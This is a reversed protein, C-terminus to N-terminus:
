RNKEKTRMSSFGKTKFPFTRPPFCESFTHFFGAGALRCFHTLPNKNYLNLPNRPSKGPPNKQAREGVFILLFFGALFDAFFGAAWFIFIRSFDTRGFGSGFFLTFFESVIKGKLQQVRIKRQRGRAFDRSCLLWRPVGPQNVSIELSPWTHDKFDLVSRCKMRTARELVQTFLQQDGGHASFWRWRCNPNSFTFNSLFAHIKPTIKWQPPPPSVRSFCPRFNSSFFQWWIESLFEGAIKRFNALGFYFLWGLDARCFRLTAQLTPQCPATRDRPPVSANRNRFSPSEHGHTSSRLLKTTCAVHLTECGHAMLGFMNWLFDGFWEDIYRFSIKCIDFRLGM